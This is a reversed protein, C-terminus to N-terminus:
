GQYVIVKDGVATEDFLASVAGKNRVNVCGHSSGNYGRAKFDASFHVAQGGSFFLAYPMSTDYLSSVHNRSKWNVAFVGNRTPTLESGFRVDMELRIEGDVVWALKRQKKSICVVRGTLCRDDLTMSESTPTPTPAINNLEDSTPRRTMAVLRDLTRRDMEGTVPIERKAQFGKVAAVTVDGYTGDILADYWAIQKLRVQADKVADGKDGAALIAPGPTLINYMEDRTPERSMELLRDWTTEDVYGLSPLGRKTQFGEVALRTQDGFNETIQGEFWDLQLLRHQLERVDDGSNGVSLIPEPVASQSPTSTTVPESPDVDPESPEPTVVTVEDAATRQPVAEEPVAQSPSPANSSVASERPVAVPSPACASVGVLLALVLAARRIVLQVSCRLSRFVHPNPSPDHRNLTRRHRGM